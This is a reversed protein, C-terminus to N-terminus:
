VKKKTRKGRFHKDAWIMFGPTSHFLFENQMMEVCLEEGTDPTYVARGMMGAFQEFAEDFISKFFKKVDKNIKAVCSLYEGAKDWQGLKYYLVSLAMLMQTEEYGGYRRHLGLAAVENEFFAYLHMLTYRMGLNDSECLRLMEECQAAARGFMGSEILIHVYDELLRMYPRTELIDWYHGISEEDAFDQKEMLAKGEQVLTEIRQLREVENMPSLSVLMRRADLNDPELALAKKAYRMATKENIAGEALELFDSAKKATKETLRGPLNQNHEYMFQNLLEQIEEESMNETLHDALFENAKKMVKESMFSM